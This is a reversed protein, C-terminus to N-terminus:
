KSHCVMVWTSGSRDVQLCTILVNAVSTNLDAYSRLCVEFLSACNQLTRGRAHARSKGEKIFILVPEHLWRM